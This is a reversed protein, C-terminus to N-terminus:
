FNNIIIRQIKPLTFHIIVWAFLLAIGWAEIWALLFTTLNPFGIALFTSVITVLFTMLLALYFHFGVREGSTPPQSKLTAQAINNVVLFGPPTTMIIGVLCSKLFETVFHENFGVLIATMIFGLLISIYVPFIINFYLSQKKNM